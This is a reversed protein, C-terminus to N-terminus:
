RYIASRLKILTNMVEAIYSPFETALTLGINEKREKVVAELRRM